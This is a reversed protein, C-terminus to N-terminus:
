ERGHPCGPGTRCSEGSGRRPATSRAAPGGTTTGTVQSSHVSEGHISSTISSPERLQGLLGHERDPHVVDLLTRWTKVTVSGRAVVVQQGPVAQCFRFGRSYDPIRYGTDPIRYGTDPIRYGTDPIRYGTDPSQQRSKEPVDWTGGGPRRLPLRAPRVSARSGSRAPKANSAGAEAWVYELPFRSSLRYSPDLLFLQYLSLHTFHAHFEWPGWSAERHRRLDQMRKVTCRREM